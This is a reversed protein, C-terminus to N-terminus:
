RGETRQRVAARDEARLFKGIVQEFQEAVVLWCTGDFQIRTGKAEDREIGRPEGSEDYERPYVEEFTHVTNPEIYAVRDLNVRVPRGGPRTLTIHNM